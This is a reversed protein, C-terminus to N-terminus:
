GSCLCSPLPFLVRVPAPSTTVARPQVLLMVQVCRTAVVGSLIVLQHNGEVAQVRMHWSCICAFLRAFICM